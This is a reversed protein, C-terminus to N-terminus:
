FSVGLRITALSLYKHRNTESDDFENNNGNYTYGVTLYSKFTKGSALNFGISPSLYLGTQHKKGEFYNISCGGRVDLFLFKNLSSFDTRLVFYIPYSKCSNSVMIDAGVGVGAMKFWKYEIGAMLNIDISSMDNGSVDISSGFEGGWAFRLGDAGLRPKHKWSNPMDSISGATTPVSDIRNIELSSVAQQAVVFPCFLLFFTTLVLLTKKM